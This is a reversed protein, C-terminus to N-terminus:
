SGKKLVGVYSDYFYHLNYNRYDHNKEKTMLM